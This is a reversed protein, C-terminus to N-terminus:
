KLKMWRGGLREVFRPCLHYLVGGFGMYWPLNLERKRTRVARVIKAAVFVPDMMFREVSAAYHGNPDATKFFPTRVPGPNVVTVSIGQHAVEQRLGNSYGIVAHKTASYVSSKPTALIGAISAINVIHGQKRQIMSPLVERVCHILGLANVRFMAETDEASTKDAFEFKGFGACNILVDIRGFRKLISSFVLHVRESCGVDLPYIAAKQKRENIAKKLQGLKDENRAMLIVTAGLAAFRLAIERGLGSSAGTIAVIKNEALPECRGFHYM